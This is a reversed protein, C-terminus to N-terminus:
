EVGRNKLRLKRSERLEDTNPVDYGKIITKNLEQQLRFVAIRDQLEKRKRAAFEDIGDLFTKKM